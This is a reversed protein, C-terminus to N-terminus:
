GPDGPRKALDQAAAGVLKTRREAVPLKGGVLAQKQHDTHPSVALWALISLLHDDRKPRKEQPVPKDTRGDMM